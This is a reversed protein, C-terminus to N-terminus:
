FAENVNFYVTSDHEGIAYDLRLNVRDKVRLRYGIGYSMLFDDGIDSIHDGLSASGVWTVLGHRDKIPLRYEVQSYAIQRERYRGEIYGRLNEGGGVMPLYSWPVDGGTFAGKVQWAILGPIPTLDVYNALNVNYTVFDNDGIEDLYRGVDFQFLWGDSPNLLFDRSDYTLNLLVGMEQHANLDEVSTNDDRDPEPNNVRTNKFDFGTALFLDKRVRFYYKPTVQLTRRTFDIKNDSYQGAQYGRGYYVDPAKSIEGNFEFRHLGGDLITTSNVTIGASLN